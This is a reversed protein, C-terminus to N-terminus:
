NQLAKKVADVSTGVTEVTAILKEKSIGLLNTWYELEHKEHINIRTSDQHGTKKLNDSM